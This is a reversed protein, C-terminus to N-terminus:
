RIVQEAQDILTQPVSVGLTQASRLNLYLVPKRAEVVAAAPRKGSLVAVALEGAQRGVEKYDGSVALLAGRQVFLLSPGLVPVRYRLTELLIHEATEPGLVTEDPILWLADVQSLLTRLGSSIEAATSVPQAILELQQEEAARQRHEMAAPGQIAPNFLVGVRRVAPVASKLYALQEAAPVEMSVGCIPQHDELLQDPHVVMSFVVPIGSTQQRMAQTAETGATIIVRPHEQLLHGAIRTAQAQDGAMDHLEVTRIGAARLTEQAGEAATLYPAISRSLVISVGSEEAAPLASASLAVAAAVALRAAKLSRLWTLALASM